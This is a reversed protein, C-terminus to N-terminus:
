SEKVVKKYVEHISYYRYDHRIVLMKMYGKM